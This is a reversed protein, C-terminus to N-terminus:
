DDSLENNIVETENTEHTEHSVNEENDDQKMIINYRTKWIDSFDFSLGAKEFAQKRAKYWSMPLLFGAADNRNLEDKSIQAQKGNDSLGVGAFFFFRSLVNDYFHSLYQIKDSDNVNTLNCIKIPENDGDLMDTMKFDTLVTEHKGTDISNIAEDIRQKETANRAVPFPHLRSFRVNNDESKDIESLKYALREVFLSPTRHPTNFVVIINDNNAWNEFTYKKGTEDFCIATSFTGDPYREGGAFELYVPTYDSVSTKILAARGSAHLLFDLMEPRYIQSDYDFAMFLCNYFIDNYSMDLRKEKIKAKLNRYM